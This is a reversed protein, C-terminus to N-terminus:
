EEGERARERAMKRRMRVELPLPVWGGFEKLDITPNSVLEFLPFSAKRKADLM